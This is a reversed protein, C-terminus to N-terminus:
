KTWASLNDRTSPDFALDARAAAALALRLLEDFGNLTSELRISGNVGSLTLQYWGAHRRRMPAYYALKLDSLDEWALFHPWIGRSSLGDGTSVISFLCQALVRLGFWLFILGVSGLALALPWGVMLFVLPGVTISIGGCARLGDLFLVRPPYRYVESM